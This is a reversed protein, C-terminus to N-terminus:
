ISGWLVFLYVWVLYILLFNNELKRTRVQGNEDKEDVESSETKNHICNEQQSISSDQENGAEEAKGQESM